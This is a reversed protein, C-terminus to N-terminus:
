ENWFDGRQSKRADAITKLLAKDHGVQVKSPRDFLMCAPSEATFPEWGPDGTEAFRLWREKMEAQLAYAEEGGACHIESLDLNGFTFGLDAGHWPLKGELVPIVYSMLYNYVPANAAASRALAYDLTGPRCFTDLNFAYLPDLNPYAEQMAAAVQAASDGFRRALLQVKEAYPRQMDSQQFEPEKLGKPSFLSLEGAVSGVLVPIERTEPRFGARTFDPLLHVGDPTPGIDRSMYGMEQCAKDYAEAVTEFPLAQLASISAENLGLIEITRRGLAASDKAVPQDLMVGSQIIARHFLGDAEPMQMLNMIKGGGGSQGFVTVRDPDGGFASINEKVWRLAAILDYLGANASQAFGLEELNLYGLCGLRHNVSVVVVRGTAALSAGDMIPEDISSGSFYGGGHFWVMVPRKGSPDSTWINLNQCDESMTWYRHTAFLTSKMQDTVLCTDGWTFFDRIGEWSEPEKPLEFRKARAYPIGRFSLVGNLDLGHALGQKTKVVPYDPTLTLKKM